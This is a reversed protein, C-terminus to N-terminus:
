SEEEPQHRDLVSRRVRLHFGVEGPKDVPVIAIDAPDLDELSLGREALWGALAEFAGAYDAISRGAIEVAPEWASTDRSATGTVRGPGFAPGIRHWPLALRQATSGFNLRAVVLDWESPSVPRALPEGDPEWEVERDPDHALVQIVRQRVVSLDAGLRVLVQAAIGEGERVLGLLMHETDVTQQGLQLAERVSLEFVKVARPTFLLPRTPPATGPPGVTEIVRDRVADLSVDFSALVAAALGAGERILGLLIHETGIFSHNVRRAEEEALVAVSRAGPTFSAYGLRQTRRRRFVASV